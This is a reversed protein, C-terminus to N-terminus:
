TPHLRLCDMTKGGLVAVRRGEWGDSIVFETDWSSAPITITSLAQHRLRMKALAFRSADDRKFDRRSFM